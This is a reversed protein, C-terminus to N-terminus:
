MCWRTTCKTERKEKKVSGRSVSCFEGVCQEFPGRDVKRKKKKGKRVGGQPM